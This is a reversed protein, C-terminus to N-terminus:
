YPGSGVPHDSYDKGNARRPGIGISIRSPIITSRPEKLTFKVTHEDLVEVKELLQLDVLSGSEDVAAFSCKVDSATLPPGDSFRVNKRLRVTWVTGDGSIEYEEALDNTINMAHDRKLLTSQFLPSGYRGW